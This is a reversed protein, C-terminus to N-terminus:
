QRLQPSPTFFSTIASHTRGRTRGAFATSSQASTTSSEARSSCASSLRVGATSCAAPSAPPWGVSYCTCRYASGDRPPRGGGDHTGRCSSRRDVRHVASRSGHAAADGLARVSRGSRGEIAAMPACNVPRCTSLPHGHMLNYPAPRRCAKRARPLHPTKGRHVTQVCCIVRSNMAGFDPWVKPVPAGLPGTRATRPCRVM